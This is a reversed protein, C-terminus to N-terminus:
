RPPGASRMAEAHTKKAVRRLQIIRATGVAVTLLGGGVAALLIAVGLPLTWHWGFFTFPTAATNQAIFILLLILILFGAILSSWLAGARTFKVAPDKATARPRATPPPQAPSGPPNSTM